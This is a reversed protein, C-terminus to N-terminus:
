TAPDGINRYPNGKEIAFADCTRFISGINMGSRINDLVIVSPVKPIDKYEEKGVRNLEDLFLKRVSM